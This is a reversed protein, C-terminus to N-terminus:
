SFATKLNLLSLNMSARSADEDIVVVLCLHPQGEISWKKRVADVLQNVVKFPSLFYLIEKGEQGKYSRRARVKGQGSRPTRRKIRNHCM